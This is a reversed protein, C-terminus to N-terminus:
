GSSASVRAFVRWFCYKYMSLLEPGFMSVGVDSVKKVAIKKANRRTSASNDITIHRGAVSNYIYIITAGDPSHSCDLAVNGFRASPIKM